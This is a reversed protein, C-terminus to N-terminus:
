AFPVLLKAIVIDAFPRITQSAPVWTQICPGGEEDGRVVDAEVVFGLVSDLGIM